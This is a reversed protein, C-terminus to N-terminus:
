IDALVRGGNPEAPHGVQVIERADQVDVGGVGVAGPSHGLDGGGRTRVPEVEEQQGIVVRERRAVPALLAPVVPHQDQHALLDRRSPLVVVEREAELARHVM